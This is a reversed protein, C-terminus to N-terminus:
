SFLKPTQLPKKQSPCFTSNQIKGPAFKSPIISYSKGQYLNPSTHYVTVLGLMAGVGMGFIINARKRQNM